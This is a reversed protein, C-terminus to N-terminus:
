VVEQLAGHKVHFLRSQDRLLTDLPPLEIATACVQAQLGVLEHLIRLQNEIDLEAGLDDLLFLSSLGRINKLVRAQALRMGIVLLKQQGRSLIEAVARGQYQIQFDARQPGSHTFGHNRDLSRQRILVEHWTERDPWGRRYSLALTDAAPLYEQMLVRLAPELAQIYEGRALDLAEGDAVLARDWATIEKSDLGKRLAANRQKLRKRFSKWVPIYDQKVHFLGWDLFQRRIAPGDEILGHLNGGMWHLPFLTALESLQRTPQGDIRAELRGGQRAIGVPIRRGSGTRLRAGLQFGAEGHTIAQDLQRTRFSRARGLIHLAELFSTKGAANAGSFLNLGPALELQLPRLNRFGTFQVSQIPM